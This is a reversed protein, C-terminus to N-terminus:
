EIDNIRCELPKELVSPDRLVKKLFKVGKAWDLGECYREDIVVDLPLLKRPVIDDKIDVTPKLKEKGLGIFIGTTGFDYIHHYVSRIGLSKMNTIFFSTHFPSAELIFSPLLNISDLKMILRVARYFLWDPIKTLLSAVQDTDTDTAGNTKTVSDAMGQLRDRVTKIDETGDFHVKITTESSGGRLDKQVAYSISIDNRAYIRGKMVFRNLQPHLALMRVISATIIDMYTYRVGKEKQEKIFNDMGDCSFDDSFMIMSDSRNKMVCPVIRMFPDLSRIKRGDKRKM